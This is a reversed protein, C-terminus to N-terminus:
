RMVTAVILGFTVMAIGSARYYRIAEASKSYPVFRLTNAIRAAALPVVALSLGALVLVLGIVVSTLTLGTSSIDEITTIAGSASRLEARYDGLPLALDAAVGYM